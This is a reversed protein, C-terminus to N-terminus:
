QVESVLWRAGRRQVTLTTAYGSQRDDIQALLYVRNRTLGTARLRRVRPRASNTLQASVRPRHGILERRLAPTAGRIAPDPRQGYSYPLYGTLFARAARKARRQADRQVASLSPAAEEADNAAPPSTSTRAASTATPTTSTTGTAQYPDTIGCGASMASSAIVAALLAVRRM